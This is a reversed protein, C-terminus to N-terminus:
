IRQVKVLVCAYKEKIILINWLNLSSHMLHQRPKIDIVWCYTKGVPSSFINRVTNKEKKEVAM